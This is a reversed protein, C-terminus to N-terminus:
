PSFEAAHIRGDLELLIRFELSGHEFQVDYIDEGAAGVGKFSMSQLPGLRTIAAQLMPLERRNVDAFAPVMDDYNPTGNALGAILRRLAAESGSAATQDLFRKETAMSFDLAARSEEDGLRKVVQERNNQHLTVTLHDATPFTWRADVVKEFFEHEDTPFM